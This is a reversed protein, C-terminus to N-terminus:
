QAKQMTSAKWKGELAEPKPWYLRLVTFFPGQPAPLWNSEKEAGPSDHQVYLTLGGDPDPKLSPLMPSNILYRNLSNAYLLSSPLEYLTLSWFANVPPFEGPAFHLTYRNHGDLKQKDSDVFYLPYMAEQKSNGYIGLVVAAMRALYDNKVEARSGLGESGTKIGTDIKSSKYDDFTKWADSMGDTVAKRLEPSLADVDFKKGAGIGLKAFRSMLAKESPHTPCFQLLFNLEAFFEPSTREESASLPKIFDITPAPAPTPKHLFQSLPQVKYGAQIHKVNDLDGPNFLQTRYAVLDFETESRIIAKIGKPKAGKWGPGVVLYNAAGNGTARSGVYAFNFTYLDIFQASYYRGKEVAPFSLVMPEARLDLGVTSYPTDSNPTQVTRDDPTYVRAVSNIQNWPAKFEPSGRDIFFSYQVRYGDVLPFGYIYADKAIVRAEAPSLTQAIVPIPAIAFVALYLVRFLVNRMTRPM